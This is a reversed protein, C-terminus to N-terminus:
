SGSDRLRLLAEIANDVDDVPVLLHDHYYGAIM